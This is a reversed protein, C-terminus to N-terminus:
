QEMYGISDDTAEDAATGEEVEEDDDESSDEGKDDSGGGDFEEPASCKINSKSEAPILSSHTADLKHV